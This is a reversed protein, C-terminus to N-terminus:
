SRGTVLPPLCPSGMSGGGGCGVDGHVCEESLGTHDPTVRQALEEVCGADEGALWEGETVSYGDDPIGSAQVDKGGVGGLCGVQRDGRQRIFYLLLQRGVSPVWRPQVIRDIKTRINEISM